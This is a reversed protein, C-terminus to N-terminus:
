SETELNQWKQYLMVRVSDISKNVRFAFPAGEEFGACAKVRPMYKSIVPQGDLIRLKRLENSSEPLDLSLLFGFWLSEPVLVSHIPQDPVIAEIIVDQIQRLPSLAM